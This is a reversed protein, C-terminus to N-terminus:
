QRCRPLPLVLSEKHGDRMVAVCWSYMPPTATPKFNMVTSIASNLRALRWLQRQSKPPAHFIMSAASTATTPYRNSDVVIIEFRETLQQLQQHLVKIFEAINEAENYASIVCSIYPTATNNM